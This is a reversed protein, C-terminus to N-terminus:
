AFHMIHYFVAWIEVQTYVLEYMLVHRYFVAILTRVRGQIVYFM